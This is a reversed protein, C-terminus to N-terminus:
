VMLGNIFLYNSPMIPLQHFWSSTPKTPPLLDSLPMDKFFTDQGRGRGRSRETKAWWSIPM